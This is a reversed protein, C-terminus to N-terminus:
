SFVKMVIAEKGDEKADMKACVLKETVALALKTADRKATEGLITIM